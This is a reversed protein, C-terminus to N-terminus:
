PLARLTLNRYHARTEYSCIGLPGAIEVSPHVSIQKNELSLSVVRDQDVWAEIKSPTVRLRIAYWRDREYRRHSSTENESANMEDVSSLGTVGGGWGGAVFSCLNEGVPFVIGCFFDNGEVRMAELSFEYNTRPLADGAWRVGTLPNGAALRMVGEVGEVTGEAGFKVAEWSGLSRGDFLSRRGGQPSACGALLLAFLAIRM